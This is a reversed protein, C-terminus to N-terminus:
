DLSYLYGDDALWCEFGDIEGKYTTPIDIVDVRVILRGSPTGVTNHVTATSAYVLEEMSNLLADIMMERMEGHLGTM